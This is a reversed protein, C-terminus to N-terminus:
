GVGVDTVTIVQGQWRVGSSSSPTGYAGQWGSTGDEGQLTVTHNGAALTTVMSQSDSTISTWLQREYGMGKDYSGDILVRVHMSGEQATGVGKKVGKACTVVDIRVTRKSALRLAGECLTKWGTAGSVTSETNVQHLLIGMSAGLPVANAAGVVKSASATTTASAPVKMQALLTAGTPLTPAAPTAAATGSVVGLTVLNDSDGQSLDHATIYVSDIRPNGASNATTAVTGGPWYAITKGDSSGRSCVAVGAAVSYAASSTGTVGLGSLVGVNQYLSGTILRYDQATTGTTGDNAVGLAVHAM